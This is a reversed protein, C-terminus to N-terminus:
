KGTGFVKLQALNLCNTNKPDQKIIIYRARLPRPLEITWEAEGKEATWVAKGTGKADMSLFVSMGQARELFDLRRNEIWLRTIVKPAGLDVTVFEGAQGDLTAFAFRGEHLNRGGKLFGDRPVYGSHVSSTKYTANESILVEPKEVKATKADAAALAANGTKLWVEAKTRSLQDITNSELYRTLYKVSRRLMANKASGNTAGVMESYWEGLSLLEKEAISHLPKAAIPVLRKLQENNARDLYKAAEAPDDLESVYLKVIEEATAHDKADKLLKEELRSIQKLTRDRSMAFEMKAKTADLSDSKSQTALINARRYDGAAEAYQKKEAKEDGITILLDILADSADAREEAKGTRTQKTLLDILKLRAADRQDEQSDALLQMAEIATPFGDPHKGALDGVADCLLAQLKPTSGGDKAVALMEKALAIDDTRDSTAAVQKIKVSYLSDFVQSAEDAIAPFTWLAAILCCAASMYSRMM